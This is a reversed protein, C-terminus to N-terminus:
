AEALAAATELEIAECTLVPLLQYLQAIGASMTRATLVSLENDWQGDVGAAIQSCLDAEAVLVAAIPELQELKTGLSM